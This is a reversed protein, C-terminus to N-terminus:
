NRQNGVRQGRAQAYRLPALVDEAETLVHTVSIGDLFSPDHECRSDIQASGCAPCEITWSMVPRHRNHFLPGGNIANGVWYLTVTPTQVARALHLPGTDNGVVLSALRLLGALGGLSVRGGLRHAPARMADAVDNVLDIESADGTIAIECGLAHLADALAAYKTVPWRRRPDTAGPHIVVLPADSRQGLADRAEDIDAETVGVHPMVDTPPAGALAAVELYRLTENQFYRYRISRDLAESGDAVLGVISPAGIEKLFPNSRKGGGHMQVLVDFREARLAALAERPTEVPASLDTDPASLGRIPPLVIVRDVPSPRGNLFAAHWERALLVLEAEPYAAKLSALAPLIFIFDGLANARLVGIKRVNEIREYTM